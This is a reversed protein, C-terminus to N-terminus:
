TLEVTYTVTLRSGTRAKVPSEFIAEAYLYGSPVAPNSNTTVFLGLVEKAETFTYTAPGLTKIGDVANPGPPLSTRKSYDTWGPHSLMTDTQINLEDNDVILGLFMNLPTSSAGFVRDALYQLGNKTVENEVTWINGDLDLTFVGRM